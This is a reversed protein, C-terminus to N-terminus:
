MEEVGQTNNVARDEGNCQGVFTWIWLNIEVLLQPFKKKKLDASVNKWFVQINM